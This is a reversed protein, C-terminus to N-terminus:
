PTKSTDMERREGPIRVRSSQETALRTLLEDIMERTEPDQPIIRELSRDITEIKGSHEIIQDPTGRSLREIKIAESLFKLAENPSLESPIDNGNEDNGNIIFKIRDIAKQQLLMSENAHRKAMDKVAKANEIREEQEQEIDWLEARSVWNYKVSWKEFQRIKSLLKVTDNNLLIIAAKKFSRGPGINRYTTFAAYAKATEGIQKDWPEMYEKKKTM